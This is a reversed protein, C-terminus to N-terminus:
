HKNERYLKKRLSRIFSKDYEKVAMEAFEIWDDDELVTFYKKNKLIKQPNTLLLDLKAMFFKTQNKPVLDYKIDCIDHPNSIALIELNSPNIEIDHEGSYPTKNLDIEIKGSKSVGTVYGERDKHNREGPIKVKHGYDFFALIMKTM